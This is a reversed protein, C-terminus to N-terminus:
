VMMPHETVDEDAEKEALQKVLSVAKSENQAIFSNEQEEDVAVQAESQFNDETPNEQDNLIDGVQIAKAMKSFLSHIQAESLWLEPPFRARTVGNKGEVTEERM